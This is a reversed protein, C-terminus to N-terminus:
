RRQARRDLSRSGPASSSASASSRPRDRLLHRAATTRQRRGDGRSHRNGQPAAVGHVVDARLHGAASLLLVAITILSLALLLLRLALQQQREMETFPFINLRASPDLSMAIERLRDSFAAADRGRVKRILTASRCRRRPPCAPAAGASRDPGSQARQRASRVVVGVIEHWRETDLGARRWDEPPEGLALGEQRGRPTAFARASRMAIASCRGCSLRTSSSRRSTAADCRRGDAPPRRGAARRVRRLLGGVRSQVGGAAAPRRRTRTGEVEIRGGFEDGPIGLAM